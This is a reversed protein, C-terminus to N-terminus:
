DSKLLELFLDALKPHCGIPPKLDFKIKPYKKRAEEIIAPIDQSVHRGTNLFNLLLIIEAAGQRVCSEIGAPLSPEAVELFAYEVVSIGSKRRLLNAMERNEENARVNRSGHSVLLLAQM